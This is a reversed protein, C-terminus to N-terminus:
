FRRRRHPQERGSCDAATTSGVEPFSAQTQNRLERCQNTLELVV